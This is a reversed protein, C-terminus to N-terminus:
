SQPPSACGARGATRRLQGVIVRNDHGPARREPFRISGDRHHVPQLRPERRRAPEGRDTGAKVPQRRGAHEIAALRGGVPSEESVGLAAERSDPQLSVTDIDLIPGAEGRAADAGPDIERQRQDAVIEAGAGRQGDPALHDHVAQASPRLRLIGLCRPHLRARRPPEGIEDGPDGGIESASRDSGVSAARAAIPSRWSDRMNRSPSPSLGPASTALSRSAAACSRSLVPGTGTPSTARRAPIAASIREAAGISADM